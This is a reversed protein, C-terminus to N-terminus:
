RRCLDIGGAASRCLQRMNSKQGVENALEVQVKLNVWCWVRIQLCIGRVHLLEGVCM